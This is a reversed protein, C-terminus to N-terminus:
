NLCILSDIILVKIISILGSGSRNEVDIGFTTLVDGSGNRKGGDELSGNTRINDVKDV